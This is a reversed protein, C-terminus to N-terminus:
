GEESYVSECQVYASGKKLAIEAKQLERGLYAAHDLRSVLKKNVITDCIAKAETGKIVTTLRGTEVQFRGSKKVNQYHEVFIYEDKLFIVFFGKPDFVMEEDKRAKIVDVEKM